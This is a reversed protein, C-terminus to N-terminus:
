ILNVVSIALATIVLGVSAVDLCRLRIDKPDLYHKGFRIADITVPINKGTMTKMGSRDM